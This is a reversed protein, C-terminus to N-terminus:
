VSHLRLYSNSIVCINPPRFNSSQPPSTLDAHIRPKPAAMVNIGARFQIVPNSLIRTKMRAEQVLVEMSRERGEEGRGEEFIDALRAM